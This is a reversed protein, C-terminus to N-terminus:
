VQELEQLWSLHEEGVSEGGGVPGVLPRGFRSYSAGGAGGDTQGGCVDAEGAEVGEQETGTM